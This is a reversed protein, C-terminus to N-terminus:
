TVGTSPWLSHFQRIGCAMNCCIPLGSLTVPYLPLTATAGEGLFRVLYNGMM